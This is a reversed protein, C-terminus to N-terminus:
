VPEIKERRKRQSTHAGKQAEQYTHPTLKLLRLSKHKLLRCYRTMGDREQTITAAQNRGKNLGIGGKKKKKKKKKKKQKDYM